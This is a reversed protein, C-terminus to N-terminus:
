ASGRLPKPKFSNNSGSGNLYPPSQLADSYQAASVFPWYAIDRGACARNSYARGAIGFTLLNLVALLVSSPGSLVPWDYSLNSKLFLVCRAAMSREQAKLRDTGALRYQRLDCYLLWLGKNYIERVAADPSKPIRDDFQYNTIRGAVLARTAEALTSRAQPDIM